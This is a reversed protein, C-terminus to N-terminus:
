LRKIGLMGTLRRRGGGAFLTFVNQNLANCGQAPSKCARPAAEVEPAAHPPFQLTCAPQSRTTARRSRPLRSSPTTNAGLRELRNLVDAPAIVIQGSIGEAALVNFVGRTSVGVIAVDATKREAVVRM